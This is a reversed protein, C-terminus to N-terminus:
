SVRAPAGTRAELDKLMFGVLESECEPTLRERIKGEALSLALEASYVRLQQQAAKAAAAIEQEARAQIRRMDSQSEARAREGEAGSEESARARLSEIEAGINALRREMEAYRAQAEDHLRAAEELGRRIGETRAAFFAGGKKRVFYGLAGALIAFNVVKWLLARGEAAEEHAPAAAAVLPATLILIAILARKL